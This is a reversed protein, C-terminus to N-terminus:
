NVLASHHHEGPHEEWSKEIATAMEPSPARGCEICQWSAGVGARNADRAILPEASVAAFYEAIVLGPGAGRTWFALGCFSCRPVIPGNAM